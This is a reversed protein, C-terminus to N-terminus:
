NIRRRRVLDAAESRHGSEDLNTTELEDKTKLGKVVDFWTEIKAKEDKNAEDGGHKAPKLEKMRNSGECGSESEEASGRREKDSISNKIRNATVTM